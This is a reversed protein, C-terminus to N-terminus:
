DEYYDYYDETDIKIQLQDVEMKLQSIVQKAQRINSAHNVNNDYEDEEFKKLLDRKEEIEAELEEIMNQIKELTM